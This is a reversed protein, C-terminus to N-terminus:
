HLRSRELADAMWRGMGTRALDELPSSILQKDGRAWELLRHSATDRADQVALLPATLRPIGRLNLSERALRAMAGDGRQCFAYQLENRVLEPLRPYDDHEYGGSISVCARLTEPHLAAARAALYGGFGLGCIGLRESDVQALAEVRALVQGIVREFAVPMASLGALVGQGPGDFLLVSLGQELFQLALAYLEVEKASGLDNVLLVCPRREGTGASLLYVPLSHDGLPIGLSQIAHPLLESASLFLRTVRRRSMFKAEPNDFFPVQAFHYSAAAKLLMQRQSPIDGVEALTRAWGEYERGLDNWRTHWADQEELFREERLSELCPSFDDWSLGGLKMRSLLRADYEPPSAPELHHATQTMPM